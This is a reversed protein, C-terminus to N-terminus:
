IFVDSGIQYSKDNFTKQLAEDLDINESAAWLVFYLISDAMEQALKKKLDHEHEEKTVPRTAMRPKWFQWWARKLNECTKRPILDDRIGQRVRGLKKAVNCAEGVEGATACGWQMVDWHKENMGWHRTSRDISRQKLFQFTYPGCLINM